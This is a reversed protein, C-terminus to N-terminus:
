WTRKAGLRIPTEFVNKEEQVPHLKLSEGKKQEYLVYTSFTGGKERRILWTQQIERGEGSMHPTSASVEREEGEWIGM